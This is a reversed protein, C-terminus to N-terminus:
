GGRLAAKADRIFRRSVAWAAEDVEEVENIEKVEKEKRV